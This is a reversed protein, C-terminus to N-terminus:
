FGAWGAPQSHSAPHSSWNEGKSSNAECGTTSGIAAEAPISQGMGKASELGAGFSSFSDHLGWADGGAFSAARSHPQRKNNGNTAGIKPSDFRSGGVRTSDFESTLDQNSEKIISSQKPAIQSGTTDGFARWGQSGSVLGRKSSGLSLGEQLDWISGVHRDSKQEPSQWGVASPLHRQQQTVQAQSSQSSITRVQSPTEKMQSTVNQNNATALASKLEQIELRQSRCIATLKEYKSVIDKKESQIQKLEKKLNELEVQTSDGSAAKNEVILDTANQLEAVFASFAEDTSPRASKLPLGTSSIPDKKDHVDDDDLRTEDDERAHSGSQHLSDHVKKMLNTVGSKKLFNGRVSHHESIPSSDLLTGHLDPSKPLFEPPNSSNSAKDKVPADDDYQAEQAYHTSWFAGLPAASKGVNQSSRHDIEKPAPTRHDSDGPPPPPPARTPMM